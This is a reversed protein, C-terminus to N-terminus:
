DTEGLRAAMANAKRLLQRTDPFTLLDLAEEFSCWRSQRPEGGPVEQLYKLLYYAVEYARDELSFELVGLRALVESAVGAEEATERVAAQEASEGPDIHGKPFLWHNPNRSATVVLYRLAGGDVRVTVGGAQAIKKVPDSPAGETIRV